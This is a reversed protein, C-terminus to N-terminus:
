VESSSVENLEFKCGEREREGDRMKKGEEDGGYDLSKCWELRWM